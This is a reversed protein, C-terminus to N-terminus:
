IRVSAFEYLNLKRFYYRPGPLSCSPVFHLTCFTDESYVLTAVEWQYPIVSGGIKLVLVHQSHRIIIIIIISIPTPPQLTANM